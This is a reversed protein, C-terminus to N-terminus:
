GPPPQKAVPPAQSTITGLVDRMYELARRDDMQESTPAPKADARDILHASSEVLTRWAPADLLGSRELHHLIRGAETPRGIATMMNIFEICDISGAQMNDTALLEEIHSRLIRFARIRNGRRFATRAELAKNPTHTGPPVEVAIADEFYADALDQRGQFSASYGLLLLTWNVFTPPGQDRYRSLLHHLRSDCEQYRGLNLWATVTNIEAREALHDDGTRRLEAAAQPAWEAMAQYDADVMACAHHMLPHEPEGFRDLLRRYGARDQSVSYRHAAWYLGFVIGERDAAPTLALLQELWDGIEYNSRLVIESLMPRVLERALQLDGSQCARGFAARLNPWLEALRAVGEIEDWGALMDRIKTMEDLCWVGHRRALEARVEADLRSEGFSRIPELLRFRRGFPGSTVTLMSQEILRDLLDDTAIGDLDYGSALHDVAELSFPGAFISVVRFLAQEATTLLDFSWQIASHLTRHRDAGTRRSGVLSLLRQELREALDAPALSTTRAAVLEIALPIGDLRRCIEEVALRDAAADFAGSAATARENFLDVASGAPDLPPVSVIRENGVGLRERSTAVVHAYRCDRAVAEAIEAAGDVVHECNDLVIVARRDRLTGVISEILGVGPREVVGLTEAVARGVQHSATIEALDVLWADEDPAAREAVALALRTKGIGGPGVLTVVPHRALADVITDTLQDRGVLRGLRRPLNGRFLGEIRLPPFDTQGVQHIHQEAVVGDLRYWGLDRLGAGDLLATTAGSVLTQGPHAAAALRGPINVAAGFYGGRHEEAAGTHIGICTASGSRETAAGHMAKAWALATDARHFAVGFSDGVRAFLHGGYDAVLDMVMDSYRAMPQGNGSGASAAPDVEAFAFTVTGTPERAQTSARSRDSDLSKDQRLIQMELEQLRRNPEVGLEEVLRSRATRYAALADAQRGVRYLATMLLAWLGERYPHVATLETLRGVASAPDVEVRRQLEQEVATLWRETLGAVAAELGPADLGELPPGSWEALAEEVMGDDLLQQFRLVDVADAALDLRYATGTRTIADPGLAKRLRVVYSQLTREASRPPDEGWVAEVLRWVPVPSGASLALAALVVQVKAPGVDLPMGAEAEAAVGRFLRIRVRDGNLGSGATPDEWFADCPLRRLKRGRIFHWM